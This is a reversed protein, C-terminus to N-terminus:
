TNIIDMSFIDGALEHHGQELVLARGAELPVACNVALGM